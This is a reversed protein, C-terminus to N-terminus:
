QPNVPEFSAEPLNPLISPPIAASRMLNVARDYGWIEGLAIEASPQGVWVANKPHEEALLEMLTKWEPQKQLNHMWQVLPPSSKWQDLKM